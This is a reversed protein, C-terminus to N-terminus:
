TVQPAEPVTFSGPNSFSIKETDLKIVTFGRCYMDQHYPCTLQLSHLLARRCHQQIYLRTVLASQVAQM